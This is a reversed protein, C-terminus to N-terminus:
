QLYIKLKLIAEKYFYPIFLFLLPPMYLSIGLLIIQPLGIENPFSAYKMLINTVFFLSGIAYFLAIEDLNQYFYCSILLLNPLTLLFQNKIGKKLKAILFNKPTAEHIWVFYPNEVKTYFSGSILQIFVITAIGLNLNNVKLAIFGLSFLLLLLPFSKRFGVMFEFPQKSFPTPIVWSTKYNLNIFTLLAPIVLAFVSEVYKEKTILFLFFPLGIAINELCRIGYFTSNFYM